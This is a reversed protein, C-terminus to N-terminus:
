RALDRWMIHLGVRGQTPHQFAGPATGLITFGASQYLRVAATNTEVVANFQIAAFGEATAWEIMDQVLARGAGRGRAAADVMLSGSAIHSGQAPRNAYMNATGLITGGADVAVTVRGRAPVMWDARATAEALDTPMPFTDGEAAVQRIIPWIHPWDEEAAPRVTVATSDM